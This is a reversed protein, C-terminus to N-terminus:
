HSSISRPGEGRGMRRSYESARLLLLLIARSGDVRDARPFGMGSRMTGVHQEWEVSGVRSGIQGM